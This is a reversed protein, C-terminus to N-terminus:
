SITRGSPACSSRTCTTRYGAPPPALGLALCVVTLWAAYGLGLLGFRSWWAENGWVILWSAAGLAWGLRARGTQALWWPVLLAAPLALVLMHNWSVPPWLFALAAALSAGLIPGRPEGSGAVRVAALLVLGLLALRLPGGWRAAAAEGVALDLAGSLGQNTAVHTAGGIQDAVDRTYVVRAGWEALAELNAQWGTVVAPLLLAGLLLGLCLGTTYAGARRPGDPAAREAVLLAVALVGAPLLPVVKIVAALALILGGAAASRRGGLVLRFGLLLLWLLLLGVQGFRMTTVVPHYAALVAAATVWWPPRPLLRRAEAVCAAALALNVLLWCLGQHEPRLGAVPSVLLALLPPYLYHLGAPNPADYGCEGRLMAAGAAAYCTFDSAHCPRRLPVARSRDYVGPGLTALLGAGVLLHALWWIRRERWRGEHEAMALADNEM